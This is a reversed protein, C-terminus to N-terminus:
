LSERLRTSNVLMVLRGRLQRRVISASFTLSACYKSSKECPESPALM